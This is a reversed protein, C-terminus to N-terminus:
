LLCGMKFLLIKYRNKDTFKMRHITYKVGMGIFHGTKNSKKLYKYPSNYVEKLRFIGNKYIWIILNKSM